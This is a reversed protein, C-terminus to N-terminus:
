KKLLSQWTSTDAKTLTVELVRRGGERSLCWTSEDPVVKGALDCDRDTILEKLLESGASALGVVSVTMSRVKFHVKVDRKETGVPVQIAVEVEDETQTWTLAGDTSGPKANTSSTEGAVM